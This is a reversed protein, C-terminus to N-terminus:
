WMERGKQYLEVLRRKGIPSRLMPSLRTVILSRANGKAGGAVKWAFSSLCSRSGEM